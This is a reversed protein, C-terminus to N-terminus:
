LSVYFFHPTAQQLIQHAYKDCINGSNDVSGDDILLVEFDHFHQKLVSDICEALYKEVNYVPICISFYPKQELRKTEEIQMM